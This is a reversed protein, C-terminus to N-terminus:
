QGEKEAEQKDEFLAEAYRKLWGSATLTERSLRLYEAIPKNRAQNLLDGADISLVAGLDSLYDEEKNGQAFALAQALGCSHILSPFRKAFSAFEKRKKDRLESVRGQIRRYAVQAFRQTRTVPRAPETM